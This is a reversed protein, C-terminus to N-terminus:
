PCSKKREDEEERGRREREKGKQVTERKEILYFGGTLCGRPRSFRVHQRAILEEM